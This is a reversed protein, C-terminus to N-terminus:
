KSYILLDCNGETSKYLVSKIKQNEKNATTYVFKLRKNSDQGLVFLTPPWNDKTWGLEKASAVYSSESEDWLINQYLDISKSYKITQPNM